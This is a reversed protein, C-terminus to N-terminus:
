TEYQGNSIISVVPVKSLIGLLLLAQDNREQLGTRLAKYEYQQCLARPEAPLTVATPVRFFHPGSLSWPFATHNHPVM